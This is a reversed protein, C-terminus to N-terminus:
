SSNRWLGSIWDVTAELGHIEHDRNKLNSIQAEVTKFITQTRRVEKNQSARNFDDEDKSLYVAAWMCSNM